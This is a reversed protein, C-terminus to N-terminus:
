SNNLRLIDGKEYFHGIRYTGEPDKLTASKSYYHYSLDLDKSVIDGDHYIKGLANIASIDEKAAEAELLKLGESIHQPKGIGYCLQYAEKM